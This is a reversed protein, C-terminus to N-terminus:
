GDADACGAIAANIFSSFSLFFIVIFIIFLCRGGIGGDRACKHRFLVHWDLLFVSCWHIPALQKNAPSSHDARSEANNM